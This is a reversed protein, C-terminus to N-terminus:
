GSSRRRRASGVTVRAIVLEAKTFCKSSIRIFQVDPDCWNEYGNICLTLFLNDEEPMVPKSEICISCLSEIFLTWISNFSTLLSIRNDFTQQDGM